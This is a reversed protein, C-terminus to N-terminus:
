IGQILRCPKWNKSFRPRVLDSVAHSGTSVWATPMRTGIKSTQTSGRGQLRNAVFACTIRGAGVCQLQNGVYPPMRRSGSSGMHPVSPTHLVLHLILPPGSEHSLRPARSNSHFVPSTNVRNQMPAFAHVPFKSPRIARM